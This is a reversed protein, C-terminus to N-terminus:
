TSTRADSYGINDRTFTLKGNFNTVVNTNNQYIKMIVFMLDSMFTVHYVTSGLMGLSLEHTM